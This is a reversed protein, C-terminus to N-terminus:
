SSMRLSFVDMGHGSFLLKTINLIHIIDKQAKKEFDTMLSIMTFVKKERVNETGLLSM